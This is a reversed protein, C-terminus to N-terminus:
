GPAGAGAPLDLDHPLDVDWALHADTVIRAVLGLRAAEARHRAFSGPGYAVRFGSATPLGLVNTGDLRRDPVLTVGPFDAVWTLDSAMPLDAHAVVVRSVGQAALREIGAAVAGNLGLGPTWAVQAGRETAWSRVDDHDCVVLVPLDRAAGLVTAAMQRALDARATPDLAPALRLKAASFAKIPVLVAADAPM